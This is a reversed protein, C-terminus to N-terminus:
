SNHQLENKECYIVSDKVHSLHLFMYLLLLYIHANSYVTVYRVSNKIINARVNRLIWQDLKYLFHVDWSAPCWM